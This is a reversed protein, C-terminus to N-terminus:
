PTSCFQLSGCSYIQLTASIFLGGGGELPYGLTFHKSKALLECISYFHRILCTYDVRLMQENLSLM